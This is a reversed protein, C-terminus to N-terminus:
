RPPTVATKLNLLNLGISALTFQLAVKVTGFYRARSMGFLRKLTGFAQEVKFRRSAIEKNFTKDLPTLPHGRSAKKSLGSRMKKQGLLENNSKSTFGKDTLVENVNSLQNVITEFQTSESVNAPTVHITEIYGNADEVSVFSRYGFYSKKGKKLWRADADASYTVITECPQQTDESPQAQTDDEIVIDKVKLSSNPRAASQIITADVLAAHASNVKLGLKELQQNIKQFLTTALDDILLKNRFRCITSEDPMDAGVDFGTFVMFDLRVRLAEELRRDSLQHWQGLLVLKFISLSSYPEQGGGHSLDRKHLTSLYPEFQEWDILENLKFTPTNKIQQLAGLMFFSQSM